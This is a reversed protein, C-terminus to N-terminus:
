ARQGYCFNTHVEVALLSVNCIPTDFLQKNPPMYLLLLYISQPM